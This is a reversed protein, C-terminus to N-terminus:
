LGFCTLGVGVLGIGAGAFIGAAIRRRGAIAFGVATLLAVAWLAAVIFGAVGSAFGWNAPRSVVRLGFVAIGLTVLPVATWILAKRFDSMGSNKPTGAPGKDQESETM